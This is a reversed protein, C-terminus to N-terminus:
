RLRPAKFLLFLAMFMLATSGLGLMIVNGPSGEPLPVQENPKFLGLKVVVLIIMLVYAVVSAIFLLGALARVAPSKKLKKVSDADNRADSNAARKLAESNEQKPKSPAYDNQFPSQRNFDGDTLEDLASGLSGSAKISVSEPARAANPLPTAVPQASPNAAPAKPRAAPASPASSKAKMPVQVSVSCKVCKGTKGAFKDDVTM